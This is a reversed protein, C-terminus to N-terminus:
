TPPSLSVQDCEYHERTIMNKKCSAELNLCKYGPRPSDIYCYADMIRYTRNVEPYPSVCEFSGHCEKTIPNFTTQPASRHPPPAPPLDVWHCDTSRNLIDDLRRANDHCISKSDIFPASWIIQLYFITSILYHV